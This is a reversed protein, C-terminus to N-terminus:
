GADGAQQQERGQAQRCAGGVLGGGEVGVPLCQHYFVQAYGAAVGAGICLGDLAAEYLAASQLGFDGVVFLGADPLIGIIIIIHPCGVGVGGGVPQAGRLRLGDGEAGGVGVGAGHGRGEVGVVPVLVVDQLVAPLGGGGGGEGQAVHAGLQADRQLRARAQGFGVQGPGRHHYVAGLQPVVVVACVVGQEVGVGVGGQGGQGDGQVVSGIGVGGFCGGGEGGAFTQHQGEADALRLYAGQAGGARAPLLQRGRAGFDRAHGYQVAGRRPREGDRVVEGAPHIHRASDVVVVESGQRVLERADGM